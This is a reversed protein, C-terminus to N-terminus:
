QRATEMLIEGLTPHIHVIDSLQQITAGLNILVAVEQVIDASHEGFMHCGLIRGDKDSFLKMMGETDDIALAKGNSRYFGKRCEYTTGSEKLMEESPGVCAAEPSTFIASPIIDLRIHDKRDIIHNIVHRGQAESAHALLTHGNVDGIAYISNVNTQMNNDVIIGKNSYDIGVTDLGLGEINPARGTAVLVKDADLANIDEVTYKMKFTIGRKELVKRLRKAIDGDITPLCEKLYEYVTVKTGFAHLMSAFEMGIVGAGVIAISSPLHDTSLIEDSTMAHEINRIPPMKPRSGTAIIIHSAQYLEENVMVTHTDVITAEGKIYTIGPAQMLTEVGSRLKMIVGEKREMAQTFSNRMLASHILTKTPICGRNLCVGGAEAKEIVAVQLGNRAAYSATQYGGPGCGIIIIDYKTM